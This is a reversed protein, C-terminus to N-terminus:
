KEGQRLCLSFCLFDGDRGRFYLPLSLVTEEEEEEEGEGEEIVLGEETIRRLRHPGLPIGSVKPLDPADAGADLYQQMHDRANRQTLEDVSGGGDDDDEDALAALHDVARLAHSPRDPSVPLPNNSSSSTRIGNAELLATLAAVTGQQRALQWFFLPPFVASLLRAANTVVIWLLLEYLLPPPPNALHHTSARPCVEEKVEMVEVRAAQLSSTVSDMGEEANRREEEAKGQAEQLAARAWGAEAEATAQAVEAQVRRRHSTDAASKLVRREARFAQTEAHLKSTLQEIRARLSFVLGHDLTQVARAFPAPKVDRPSAWGPRGVSYVGEGFWEPQQAQTSGAHSTLPRMTVPSLGDRASTGRRTGRSLPSLAASTYSASPTLAQNAVSDAFKDLAHQTERLEAHEATHLSPLSRSPKVAPAVGLLPKFAHNRYRTSAASCRPPSLNPM